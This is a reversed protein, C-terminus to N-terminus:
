RRNRASGASVRGPREKAPHGDDWDWRVTSHVRVVGPVRQTLRALLEADSRRRMRGALRVEGREVRLELGPEDLWLTELLMERIEREIEEDSRTFARVLDTRTVIGILAGEGDVVPLRKIVHETMLRAAEAVTEHAGVTIAPSGMAEAATRAELKQRDVSRGGLLWAILRRDHPDPGVEKAIIDAESVVGLVELREGIVPVGSIRHELLISAVDKLPTEPGVAIPDGTMVESLQMHGVEKTRLISPASARPM